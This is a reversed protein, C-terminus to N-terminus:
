FFARVEARATHIVKGIGQQRGDYSVTSQLNTSIRYDFNTRWSYNKGIANGESLEYPIYNDMTNTNLENRDVEIRLRGAGAFSFNFRLGQGNSNIETPKSPFNDRNRGVKIKFGVEINRLPRYSFETILNEGAIKRNRNSNIPAHLDDTQFIIETQNTIEEIMRFRIRLSKENLLGRENGSAFQNMSRRELFRLRFSLDQSNEFIFIDQQFLNSGRITLSDNLFSSLHLLYIKRLESQQSNEEIRFYTETSLSSFITKLLGPSDFFSDYNVKWRTSTKLDIVPFLEDTPLNIIIFEGDFLTLQFENEDAVGNNNIDGLYIYNGQGIPVKVFIKQLKATKQTSVEYFLDGEIARQFFNFRNQTRILVTQNDLLGQKKLEQSFKKDRITIRFSSQVERVGSYNLELTQGFSKSENIMFGNMPIDDSRFTYKYSLSVGFLDKIEFFPDLQIFRLSSLLLSDRENIKDNKDEAIFEIGPIFKNFAYSFTGRQRLWYSKILQNRTTLYDFNYFINYNKNKGLSLTNNFRNSSFNSNFYNIKNLSSYTSNFEGSNNPLYRVSIERLQEDARLADADINFDRNFEVSNFRDSTTFQAQIFRERLTLGIKGMSLNSISIEQPLIQLSLNRAYALNKNEDISSFRNRDWSSGALEFNFIFNKNPSYSLVINSVQKLEPMPLFIIPEFSGRNIGVFRYHGLSERIYNGKSSGIFSFSVFYIASASGPNYRYFSISESNILTDVKEYIGRMVGLSDPTALVIGSKVAKDRDNGANKLIVKDSDSLSIDIPSDQNDGDRFYSFKLNLKKDFFSSEGGVAFLNRVFKRDAYEFDVNIRSVSTILRNPTFTITADSYDIIYDNREGRRMEEGDVFIKESGAIIIIDRENNSGFLRFPGQVGDQGVFNNTNFKGKSSAISIFANQNEFNVEGILGQLKRNIVGFEGFRKSISYDGFTASANKHKLQIFVKDFEDLRETNGEPQIPTNEDTLAAVVEIEDSLRGSFQLKLGSQLTLDKNTGLTFGRIITGSKEIESGFINESTLARSESRLVKVTDGTSEQFLQVLERRKYIKQLSLKVTQYTVFLTDFISYSVSESISFSLDSYNFQYQDASLYSGRLQIIESNPLISLSSIRYYNQFNIKITDTVIKYNPNIQGFFFNTSVLFFFVLFFQKM